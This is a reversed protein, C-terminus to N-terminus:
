EKPLRDLVSGLAETWLSFGGKEELHRKAMFNLGGPTMERSLESLHERSVGDAQASLARILATTYDKAASESLGERGAWSVVTDLLTFYSATLGTLAALISAEKRSEVAVVEGLPSLLEIIEAIKPCLIMPGTRDAVFPLPVLHCLIKTKGIWREIQALSKDALMNLVIHEPRFRISPLIEEGKQPLIGLFLIDARDAVEQNDRAVSVRGPFKECLSLARERNRPSVVIPYPREEDRCFGTVLAASMVGTGIFGITPLKTQPMNRVEQM